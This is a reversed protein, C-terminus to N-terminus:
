KTESVNLTINSDAYNGAQDFARVVITHVGAPLAIYLPSATPLFAGNDFKVYYNSALPSPTSTSEFSLRIVQGASVATQSARIVPPTPPTIDIMIRYDAIPGVAGNEEPAMHFYWIGDTLGHLTISTGDTTSAGALSGITPTNDVAYLYREGPVGKWLMLVDPQNYWRSGNPDTPSFPLVSAMGNLMTPKREDMFRLDANTALRLVDTGLGDNALVETGSAFDITADGPQLGQVVLTVVTGDGSLGPNPTGCAVQVMGNANDINKELFMGPSCFSNATLIDTVRLKSPDFSLDIQAANIAEGGTLVRVAIQQESSLDFIGSDPVLSLTSNYIPYPPPQIIIQQRGLVLEAELFAVSFIVASFIGLLLYEYRRGQRPVRLTHFSLVILLFLLAIIASFILGIRTNSNRYLVLVGGASGDIGPLPINKLFYSKGEITVAQDTQANEIWDSGTNFYTDILAKTKPDEFTTGVVGAAKAYFILDTNGSLYRGRFAHAYADDISYGGFVAGVMTGNEKVPFGAIVILPLDTGKEVSVTSNGEALQQGYTTSQFIYDGVSTPAKERALVVGNADTVVIADLGTATGEEQITSAINPLDDQRIFRAFDPTAALAEMRGYVYHEDDAIGNLIEGTKSGFYASELARLIPYSFLAMVSLAVIFLTLVIWSFRERGVFARFRAYFPREM